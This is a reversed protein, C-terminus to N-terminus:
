SGVARIAYTDIRQAITEDPVTIEFHAEEGPLLSDELSTHVVEIIMNEEDFFTGVVKIQEATENGVNKVTGTVYYQDNDLDYEGFSQSIELRKYLEEDTISYDGVVKYKELKDIDFNELQSLEAISLVIKFPSIEGPALIEIETYSTTVASIDDKAGILKGGSCYFSATILIDTMSFNRGNKVEGVLTPCGWESIYGRKSLFLLDSDGTDPAPTADATSSAHTANFAETGDPAPTADAPPSALSANFAETGDPAPTADAPLSALSANFTESGESATEEPKPSMFLVNVSIILLVVVALVVIIVAYLNKKETM